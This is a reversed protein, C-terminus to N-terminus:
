KGDENETPTPTELVFKIDATFNGDKMIIDGSFAAGRMLENFNEIAIKINPGVSYLIGFLLDRMSRADQRSEDLDQRLGIIAKAAHEILNEKAALTQKLAANQKQLLELPTAMNLYYVDAM